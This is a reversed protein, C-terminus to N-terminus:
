EWIADPPLGSPVPPESMNDGIECRIEPKDGKLIHHRLFFTAYGTKAKIDMSVSGIHKTTGSYAYMRFSREEEQGATLAKENIKWFARGSIMQSELGSYTVPTRTLFYDSPVIKRALIDKKLKKLEPSLKNEPTNMAQDFDLLFNNNLKMMFPSSDPVPTKQWTLVDTVLFYHYIGEGIMEADSEIDSGTFRLIYYAFEPNKMFEYQNFVAGPTLRIFIKDRLWSASVDLIDFISKKEEGNEPQAAKFTQTFHMKSEANPAIQNFLEATTNGLSDTATFCILAEAENSIRSPGEEPVPNPMVVPPGKIMGSLEDTVTGKKKLTELEPEKGLVSKDIFDPLEIATKWVGASDIEFKYSKWTLGSDTSIDANLGIVRVTKQKDVNNEIATAAVTIKVTPTAAADDWVAYIKDFVVMSSLPFASSVFSNAPKEQSFVFTSFAFFSGAILSIAM